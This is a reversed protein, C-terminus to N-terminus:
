KISCLRNLVQGRGVMVSVVGKGLCCEAAAAQGMSICREIEVSSKDNCGSLYESLFYGILCDGAGTPDILDIEFAPLHVVAEGRQIFYVGDKDATMIILQCQTYEQLALLIMEYSMNKSDQEILLQYLSMTEQRNLVLVEVNLGMWFSTEMVHVPASNFVVRLMRKKAIELLEQTCGIENQMLLVQCQSCEIWTLIDTRTILNNTGHSLIVTNNTDGCQTQLINVHGTYGEKKVIMHDGPLLRDLEKLVWDGDTGVAGAFIANEYGAAKLALVQNLGKGGVCRKYDDAIVLKDREPLCPLTYYHDINISGICLVKPLMKTLNTPLTDVM